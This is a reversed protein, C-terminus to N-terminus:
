RKIGHVVVSTIEGHSDRTITLRAADTRAVAEHRGLMVVLRSPSSPDVDVGVLDGKADFLATGSSDSTAGKGKGSGVEVRATGAHADYSISSAKRESLM